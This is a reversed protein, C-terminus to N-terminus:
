YELNKVKKLVVAELTNDVSKKPVFFVTDNDKTCKGAVTKYGTKYEQTDTYKQWEAHNINVDGVLIVLNDVTPAGSKPLHFEFKVPSEKLANLQSKANKSLTAVIKPLPM